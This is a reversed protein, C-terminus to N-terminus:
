NENSVCVCMLRGKRAMGFIQQCAILTAIFIDFITPSNVSNIHTFLSWLFVKYTSYMRLKLKHVM